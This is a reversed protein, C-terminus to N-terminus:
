NELFSESKLSDNYTSTVTKHVFKFVIQITHVQINPRVASLIVSIPPVPFM